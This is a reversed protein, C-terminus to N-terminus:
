CKGGHAIVVLENHCWARTLVLLEAGRAFIVSKEKAVQAWKTFMRM